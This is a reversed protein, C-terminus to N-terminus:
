FGYVIRMYMVHGKCLMFALFVGAERNSRQFQDQLRCLTKTRRQPIARRPGVGLLVRISMDRKSQLANADPRSRSTRDCERLSNVFMLSVCLWGVPGYHDWSEGVFNLLVYMRLVKVALPLTEGLKSTLGSCVKISDAPSGM